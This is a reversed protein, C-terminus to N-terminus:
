GMLIARLSDWVAGPAALLRPPGHPPAVYEVRLGAEKMIVRGAGLDQPKVYGTLDLYADFAGSSLWCAALSGVGLARVRYVQRTLEILKAEFWDREDPPLRETGPTDVNIIVNSLTDTEPGQLPRGDLYAGGGTHAYFINGAAVDYVVGLVPEGRHLLAISVSFLTSHQAYYKTGDIPDILWRYEAALREDGTEEGSFGHGPFRDRVFDRINREIEADVQTSFDRRLGHELLKVSPWREILIKGQEVALARVASLTDRLDVEM